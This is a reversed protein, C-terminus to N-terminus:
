YTSCGYGDMFPRTKVDIALHNTTVPAHCLGHVWHAKTIYGGLFIRYSPLCTWDIDILM